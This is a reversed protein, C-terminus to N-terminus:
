TPLSVYLDGAIPLRYVLVVQKLTPDVTVLGDGGGDREPSQHPPHSSVRISCFALDIKLPAPEPSGVAAM